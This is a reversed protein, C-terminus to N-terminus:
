RCTDTIYMDRDHVMTLTGSANSVQVALLQSPDECATLYYVRAPEQAPERPMSKYLLYTGALFLFTIGLLVLDTKRKGTM